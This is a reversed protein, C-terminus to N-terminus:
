QTSASRWAPSPLSGVQPYPSAIRPALDLYWITDFSSRRAMNTWFTHEKAFHLGQATRPTATHHRHLRKSTIFPIYVVSIKSDDHWRYGVFPLSDRALLPDIYQVNAKLYISAHKLILQHHPLDEYWIGTDKICIYWRIDFQSVYRQKHYVYDRNM